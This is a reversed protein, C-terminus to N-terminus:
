APCAEFNDVAFTYDLDAPNWPGWWNGPGTDVDSATATLALGFGSAAPLETDLDHPDDPPSEWDGFDTIGDVEFVTVGNLAGIVHTSAGSGTVSLSLVDGVAFLPLGDIDAYTAFDNGGADPFALFLGAEGQPDIEAPDPGGGGAAFTGVNSRQKNAYSFMWYGWTGVFTGDWRAILDVGGWLMSDGDSIGLPPVSAITVSTSMDLAGLPDNAIATGTLRSWYGNPGTIGAPLLATSPAELTLVGDRVVLPRDGALAGDGAVNFQNSSAGLVVAGAAFATDVHQWALDPGITDSTGTFSETLCSPVPAIAPRRAPIPSHTTPKYLRSRGRLSRTM